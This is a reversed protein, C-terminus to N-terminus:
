HHRVGSPPAHQCPQCRQQQQQARDRQQACEHRDLIETAVKRGDIGDLFEGEGFRQADIGTVPLQDAFEAGFPTCCQTIRLKRRKQHLCEQGGLVVTEEFMRADIPLSQHTRRDLQGQGALLRLAAARDRHLKCAVHEQRVLAGEGALEAFDQERQLHFVTQALFLDQLDVEVLDEQALAGVADPRRGQHVEALRRTLQRQALHGHDGSQRLRRGAVIRDGVRLPCDLPAVIHQPAHM